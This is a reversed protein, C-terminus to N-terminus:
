AAREKTRAWSQDKFRKQKAKNQRVWFARRQAQMSCFKAVSIRSWQGVDSGHKACAVQFTKNFREKDEPSTTDIRFWEGRAKRDSFALHLEREIRQASSTHIFGVPCIAFSIPKIPCGVLLQSLRSGPNITHGIKIYRPGDDDKCLLLYVYTRRLTGDERFWPLTGASM